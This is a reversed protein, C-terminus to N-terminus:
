RPGGHLTAGSIPALSARPLAERRRALARYLAERTLGLEAALDQWAGRPPLTNGEALWLTLRDEARRMSRLETRFRATQVSRALHAAWREALAPDEALAALFQARPLALVTAGVPGALGDCHYASSYASAEALVQGPEARQLILPAGAQTARLLLASGSDVLFMQAVPDGTHFLHEAPAVTRSAAGPFLASLPYSMIVIM